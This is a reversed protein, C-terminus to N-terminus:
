LHSVEPFPGVTNGDDTTVTPLAPLEFWFRAGGSSRNEAGVRGHHAEVIAKVIALGLGVGAHGAEVSARARVFPKFLEACGEKPLGPGADSIITRVCADRVRITLNISGARGSYKSANSILNILVQGIRRRDALVPPLLAPNVLRLHQGKRQLLPQVIPVIDSIVDSLSVPKRVVYFRGDRLSVECL